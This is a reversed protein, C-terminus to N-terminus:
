PRLIGKGNRDGEGCRENYDGNRNLPLNVFFHEVAPEICIVELPTEFGIWCYPWFEIHVLGLERGLQSDFWSEFYAPRDLVRRFNWGELVREAELHSPALIFKNLTQELVLEAFSDLNFCARNGPM